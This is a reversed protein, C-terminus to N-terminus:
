RRATRRRGIRLRRLLPPLGEMGRQPGPGSPPQGAATRVDWTMLGAATGLFCIAALAIWHATIYHIAYYFYFGGENPSPSVVYAFTVAVLALAAALLLRRATIGVLLLVFTVVLIVVGARVAFLFGGLAGAVVAVALARPWLLGRVSDAPAPAWAPPDPWLVLNLKRRRLALGAGLALLMLGGGVASVVYSANAARQPTFYFRASTCGPPARWGNAFGDIALPRGLSQEHGNQLTCWAEWGRSYSEGLVLWSSKPSVLKVGSRTGDTGHGPDMVDAAPAV